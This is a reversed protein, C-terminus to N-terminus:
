EDAADYTFLLCSSISEGPSILGNIKNIMTYMKETEEVTVGIGKLNNKMKDTMDDIKNGMETFKDFKSLPTGIAKAIIEKGLVENIASVLTRSETPLENVNGIDEAMYELVNPELQDKTFLNDM